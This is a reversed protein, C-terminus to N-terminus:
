AVDPLATVIDCGSTTILFTHEFHASLSGDKTVVRWGDDEFVVGPRGINVMPEVAIAMGAQLSMGTHPKGFNPIPPDEHLQTGIGHGVLDRVVALGESEVYTQIAHGIDGITNGPKIVAQAKEYLATRTVQLLHQAAASITGVPVTVASDLYMGQYILGIDISLIDGNSLRRRTPPCHVVENNISTCLVSSYGRYGKFAPIAGQARIFQDAARELETLRINPQAMKMLEALVQGLIRGGVRLAEQEAATKILAM